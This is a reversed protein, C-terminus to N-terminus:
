YPEAITVWDFEVSVPFVDESAAVLGVQGEYRLTDDYVSKVLTGNIILQLEEDVCYATYINEAGKGMNISNSGGMDLRNYEGTSADYFWIFWYGNFTVNFEYWGEDTARCIVGVYNTNYDGRNEVYVEMAVDTYVYPDYVVYAYTYPARLDIGLRGHDIVLEMDKEYGQGLFYTWNTLDGEFEETFYAAADTAPQEVPPPDVPPQDQPPQTPPPPPQTPPVVTPPVQTPPPLTPPALTPPPPETPVPTPEASQGCALSVFVLVVIFIFLKKYM